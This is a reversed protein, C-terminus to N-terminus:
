KNMQSHQVAQPIRTGPGPILGTSGATSSLVVPGGPLDKIEKKVRIGFVCLYAWGECAREVAGVAQAPVPWCVPSVGASSLAPRSRVAALCVASAGPWLEPWKGEM